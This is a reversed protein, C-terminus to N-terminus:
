ILSETTFSFIEEPTVCYDLPIDGEYVDEIIDIPRFYTLGIKKTTSKCRALFKDYYGGGYGVRNGYQDAVFLPIFVVDVTDANVETYEIPEPIQLANLETKFGKKVKCNIMDDGVVLPLIINKDHNFLWDILPYTEIEKNKKIPLFLHFNHDNNFNFHHLQQIIKDSMTKIELPTFQKRLARYHKRIEAKKM